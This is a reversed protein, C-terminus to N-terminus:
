PSVQQPNIVPITAYVAVNTDSSPVIRVRVRRLTYTTSSTSPTRYTGYVYYLLDQGSLASWTM